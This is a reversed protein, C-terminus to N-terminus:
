SQREIRVPQGERLFFLDDAPAGLVARDIAARQFWPTYFRAIIEKCSNSVDDRKGGELWPRITRALDEVSGLRFVDGTVGPIIAESEPMQEHPDDHTILPVGYGLSHMTTLGSKGPAVLVRAAKLLPAIEAEKYKAGVFAVDLGSDQAMTELSKREPGDGILIVNARIRERRLRLLAEFLMDLRRVATLRSICIVIPAKSSNFLLRQIDETNGPKVSLEAERQSEFDLSNYIVHLKSHSFGESLGIQKANHGYLLLGHSLWYYARRILRKLGKPKAVWGHTWFLVRKGSLRGVLAVFWTTVWTPTALLIIADYNSNVAIRILGCQWMIARFLQICRRPHFVVEKSFAAAKVAGQFDETDGFFEYDVKCSRALEEVVAQRFHAYFHYIVAVRPRNESAKECETM